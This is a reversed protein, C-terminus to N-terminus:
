ASYYTPTGKLAITAPTTVLGQAEGGPALAAAVTGNFVMIQGGTGFTFRFARDAQADYASKMAILGADSIDWINEFAYSIPNTTGVIQQATSDHITTTDVFNVDGGTASLTTFTSITTGFTLKKATGSTFANYSTTDIGTGGTPGELQFTDTAISAVRFVRNNVQYMGQVELLVYDGNSYGHATATVVGPAALTISTITKSAAIASQMAVAVNSWKRATAM